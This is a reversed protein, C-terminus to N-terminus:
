MFSLGYLLGGWCFWFLLGLLGVLLGLVGFLVLDSCVAFWFVLGFLLVLM